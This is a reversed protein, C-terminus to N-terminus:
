YGDHLLGERHAVAAAEGRSRVDLKGLINSVHVSATKASIWLASGIERNSRGAAVLRLVEVERATLGHPHAPAGGGDLDVGGRRAARAAEEALPAAGLRQAVEAATRLAAARAPPPGRRPRRAARGGAPGARCRRPAPRGPRGLRRRRGGLGRRRPRTATRCARASSGRPGWCRRSSRPPRWAPARWWTRSARSCRTRARAAGDPDTRAREVEIAVGTWVAPAGHFPRGGATATSALAARVAADAEDLRGQGLRLAALTAHLDAVYQPGFASTRGIRLARDLTAAAEDLRGRWLHLVARMHLVHLGQNDRGHIALAERLLGEAEDWRGLKLLM